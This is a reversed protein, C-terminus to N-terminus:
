ESDLDPVEVGLQNMLRVLQELELAISEAQRQINENSVEDYSAGMDRARNLLELHNNLVKFSTQTIETVEARDLSLESLKASLRVNLADIMENNIAYQRQAAQDQMPLDMISERIKALVGFTSQLKKLEEETILLNNKSVELADNKGIEFGM